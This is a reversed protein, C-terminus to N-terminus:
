SFALSMELGSELLGVSSNLPNLLLRVEPSLILISLFFLLGLYEYM